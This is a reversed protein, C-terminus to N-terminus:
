RSHVSRNFALFTADCYPEGSLRATWRAPGWRHSGLLLWRTDLWTKTFPEKVPDGVCYGVFGLNCDPKFRGSQPFSQGPGSRAYNGFSGITRGHYPLSWTQAGPCAAGALSPPTAPAFLNLTATVLAPLAVVAALGGVRDLWNGSAGAPVAARGSGAWCWFTLAVLAAIIVDVSLIQATGFIAGTWVTWVRAAVIAISAAMMFKAIFTKRPLASSNSKGSRSRPM